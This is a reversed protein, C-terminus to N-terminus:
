YAFHGPPSNPGPRSCHMSSLPIVITGDAHASIGTGASLNSYAQLAESDATTSHDIYENGWFTYQGEIIAAPSFTVGDYTLVTAGDTIATAADSTGLYAIVSFGANGTNVQDIASVNNSSTNAGMTAALSGGSSFGFDGDYDGFADLEQMVGSSNIEVQSPSSLIGFGSDGFANVRTGSQNNRGSVYVFDNTDGANGTFVARPAYANLAQQIMSDTVNTGNWDGQDRVWKFTIVGVETQAGVAPTATRSYSQANDAMALDVTHTVTATPSAAGNNQGNLQTPDLFTESAGTAVDNIGAESGSWDCDITTTGSGGVLTGVFAMYTSGSESSGTYTTITPASQFVIGSASLTAFVTSRAATSGTLYVVGANSVSAISLGLVTALITKNIKM